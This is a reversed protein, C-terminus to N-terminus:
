LRASGLIPSIVRIAGLSQAILCAGGPTIRSFPFWLQPLLGAKKWSFVALADCFWTKKDDHIAPDAFALIGRWDYKKGVQVKLADIASLAQYTNAPIKLWMMKSHELYSLPRVAVGGKSRADIVTQGGPMLTTVHCYDGGGWWQITRSIPDSGQEFGVIIGPGKV